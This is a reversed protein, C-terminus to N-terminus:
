GAVSYLRGGALNPLRQKSVIETARRLIRCVAQSPPYRRNADDPFVRIM